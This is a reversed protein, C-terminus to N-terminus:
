RWGHMGRYGDRCGYGEMPGGRGPGCDGDGPGYGGRGPGCGGRGPGYGYPLGREQMRSRMEACLAYIRLDLDNVEKLLAQVRADNRPAGRYYLADLEAQGAFLQQRLPQIKQQFEKRIEQSAAYQESTMEPQHGGRPGAFAMGSLGLLAAFTLASAASVLTAKKM